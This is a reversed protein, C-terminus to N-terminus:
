LAAALDKQIIKLENANLIAYLFVLSLMRSTSAFNDVSLVIKLTITWILFTTTFIGEYSTCNQKIGPPPLSSQHLWLLPKSPFLFKLLLKQCLRNDKGHDHGLGLLHLVHFHVQNRFHKYTVLFAGKERVNDTLKFWTRRNNHSM